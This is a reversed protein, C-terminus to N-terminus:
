HMSGWFWFFGATFYRNAAITNELSMVIYPSTSDSTQPIKASTTQSKDPSSPFGSGDPDVYWDIQPVSPRHHIMIAHPTINGSDRIKDTLGMETGYSEGYLAGNVVYIGISRMDAAAHTANSRLHLYGECDANSISLCFMWIMEKSFDPQIPSGGGSSVFYAFRASVIATSNITTGSTLILRAPEPTVTGSESTTETWGTTSFQAMRYLKQNYLVIPKQAASLIGDTLSHVGTTLAAHSGIATNRAGQTDIDANDSPDAVKARASSDRHIVTSVTATPVAGVQTPVDLSGVWVTATSLAPLESTTIRTGKILADGAAAPAAFKARGSSDRRAIMNVTAASVAGHEAGTVAQAHDQVEEIVGATVVLAVSVGALHAVASTDEQGRVITIADTDRATAKVIEKNDIALMFDGEAPFLAGEGAAVSLETVSDNIGAALTSEAYNELKYM